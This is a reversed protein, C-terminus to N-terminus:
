PVIVITKQEARSNQPDPDISPSAPRAPDFEDEVTAMTVWEKTCGSIHRGSPDTCEGFEYRPEPAKVVITVTAVDGARPFRGLKCTLNRLVLECSDLATETKWSYEVKDSILNKPNELLMRSVLDLVVNTASHPGKNTVKVTYTVNQGPVVVDQDSDVRVSLDAQCGFPLKAPDFVIHFHDKHVPPKDIPDPRIV